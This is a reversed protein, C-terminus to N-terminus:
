CHPPRTARIPLHGAVIGGIPRALWATAFIMFGLMTGTTPDFTPFFLKNLFLASIVGFIFFDYWEITAGILTSAVVFRRQRKDSHHLNIDM